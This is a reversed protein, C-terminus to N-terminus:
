LVRGFRRIRCYTKPTLGVSATFTRTFHRHSFGTETVVEGVNASADFRQLAHAVLPHIGHVYPLRSLLIDELLNLRDSLQPEERLQDIIDALLPRPWLDEIRAHSGALEIAPVQFLLEIAGPRLMAGVTPVPKSVDKIYPSARPGGILATGVDHGLDDALDDYLRLPADELRLVIHTAGTPLVLEKRRAPANGIPESTSAWILGVFPRLSPKAPRSLKM